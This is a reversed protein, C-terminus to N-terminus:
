GAEAPKRGASVSGLEELLSSRELVLLTDEGVARREVARWAGRPSPELGPFAETGGSGFLVPAYFLWARHVLGRALFSSAVRGGGEVLLSEIGEAALARLLHELDVGDEAEPVELVNAGSAELRRRRAPDPSPAAAIWLPAERVTRALRSEPRLRLRSDLVIRVPPRRPAPDGRATLLPDDAEATGRGVLVADSGARLRQVERWAEDGTVATRVGPARALRADLSLALKLTVFPTAEGAERHRWLHPANLRRAAEEEVGGTVEVGAARLRAAGGGAEPHPDPCAYVLRRVGAAAVADACPPRKGWHGCPELNVYVTSGEAEEGAARLAEVEAHAAGFERHFGEGVVKGGSVVVAGVLPNPAVRGWGREALCLARRMFRADEEGADTM